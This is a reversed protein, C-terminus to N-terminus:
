FTVQVLLGTGSPWKKKGWKGCFFSVTVLALFIQPVKTFTRCIKVCNGSLEM